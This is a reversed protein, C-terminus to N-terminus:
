CEFNKGETINISTKTRDIETGSEINTTNFPPAVETVIFNPDITSIRQYVYNGQKDSYVQEYVGGKHQIFPKNVKSFSITKNDADLITVKSKPELLNPNNIAELRQKTDLDEVFIIDQPTEQLDIHKNILSYNLLMSYNSGLEESFTDIDERSLFSDKLIGKDTIQFHQLVKKYIESGKKKEEQIFKAFDGKFEEKLYQDNGVIVAKKSSLVEKQANYYMKYTDLLTNPMNDIFEEISLGKSINIHSPLKATKYKKYLGELLQRNNYKKNVKKYFDKAVKVYGQDFMQEESETTAIHYLNNTDVSSDVLKYRNETAKIVKKALAKVKSLTPEENLALLEEKFDEKIDLPIEELSVDVVDQLISEITYSTQVSPIVKNQIAAKIVNNKFESSEVFEKIFVEDGTEMVYKPVEEETKAKSISILHQKIIAQRQEQTLKKTSTEKGTQTNLLKKSLSIKVKPSVFAPKNLDIVIKSASIFDEKSMSAIDEKSYSKSEKRLSNLVRNLETSNDKLSDLNFQSPDIGNKNLVKIIATIKQAERVDSELIDLVESDLKIGSGKLGVPFAVKTGKHDIIVYPTNKNKPIFTKRVSSDENLVGNQAYGYGVILNSQEKTIDFEKVNRDLDLEINPTGVFTKEVEVEFPLNIVSNTNDNALDELTISSTELKSQLQTLAEERVKNFNSGQAKIGSKLFGLVDGNTNVIYISMLKSAEEIKGEKILPLIVENNYIDKMNVSFSVKDKPQLEYIRQSNLINVEPNNILSIGFDSQMPVGDKFVYGWGTKTTYKVTQMGMGNLFKKTNKNSVIVRHHDNTYQIEFSEGLLDLKYVAALDPKLETGRNEERLYTVNFPSEEITSMKLHSITTQIKDQKINVKDMSNVYDPDSIDVSFESQGQETMELVQEATLDVTDKKIDEEYAQIQDLIDQVSVGESNTGTVIRWDLMKQSLNQYKVIEKDTLGSREKIKSSISEVPRGVIKNIDGSVFKSRLNKYEEVEQFTPAKDTELQNLDNTFNELLFSNKGVIQKLKEKLEKVKSQVSSDETTVSDEELIDEGLNEEFEEQENVEEKQVEQESSSRKVLNEIRESFEIKEIDTQQLKKLFELTTTGATKKKQVILGVRNLGINPDTLDEITDANRKWLELGKRYEKGLGIIREVLQPNTKYTEQLAKDLDELNKQTDEISIEDILGEGEFPDIADLQNALARTSINLNSLEKRTSNLKSRKDSLQINLDAISEEIELIKNSINNYRDSDKINGESDAKAKVQNVKLLQKNLSELQKRKVKLKNEVKALATVDKEKSRNIKNFNNLSQVYKESFQPGLESVSNVLAEHAGQMNREIVGTMVLQYAIASKAQEIDVETADEFLEKPNDSVIYDSFEKAKKYDEGLNRYDSVLEEIKSDVEAQDIDYNEALASKEGEIEPQSQIKLATEFDSIQDELYDMNVASALSSLMVRGQSTAMGMVDGESEAKAYDEQANQIGTAQSLNQEVRAAFIRNVTNVGSNETQVKAKNISEADQDKTAAIAESFLGQGSFVNSGEGGVIGILVGLGVEKWGQKTGYTHSLGEYMSEVIGMADKSPNYRSNLYSEMATSATAQGGEEVIGEYFPARLVSKGFGLTKQLKNRKIAEVAVREGSEGLTTKVGKGFLVKNLNKSSTKFPSTIGFTKGLIAFNSTGVLAMNTAWLANTSKDLNDEFEAIEKPSPKRGNLSEFDRNFNERQEKQFLRAEMGAEFGASTYTFRALNLTEGAKGYKTALSTANKLSSLRNYKRAVKQAQKVGKLLTKATNFYKSGRLGVRAVTTTLSTGGTAAAWLGESIVTGTLFSMGGLFDDAWFNATSLSGFFGLDREEQTRYNAVFNDMKTNQDDLFDYFSNDYIREWNGEAIASVAGYATGLTAGVVNDLTKLKFKAIGNLWKSTTSQREAYRQENDAGKIFGEDYRTIYDGSNLRTYAEDIQIRDENFSVKEPGKTDNFINSFYNADDQAGDMKELLSPTVAKSKISNYVYDIPSIKNDGINVVQETLQPLTNDEMLLRNYTNTM